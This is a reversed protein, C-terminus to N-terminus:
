QVPKKNEKQFTEENIEDLCFSCKDKIVLEEASRLIGKTPSFLLYTNSTSISPQRERKKISSDRTYDKRCRVHLKVSLSRNLAERKGDGRKVSANISTRVGKDSRYM